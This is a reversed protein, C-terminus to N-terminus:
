LHYVPIIEITTTNAHLRLLDPDSTNLQRLKEILAFETVAMTLSQLDPVRSLADAASNLKGPRYIIDFDYGILKSLWRQQEPTQIVQNTLARLPQQDTIILFKRGLLYQRWKQVAQTIAFMERHYTSVVQMRPSLKQSFFAIPHGDQSLVAGIGCGSADTEVSFAKTFNPLCLVPVTSLAHKLQM